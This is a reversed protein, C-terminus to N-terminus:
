ASRARRVQEAAWSIADTETSFVKFLRTENVKRGYQNALFRIIPNSVIVGTAVRGEIQSRSLMERAKRNAFGLERADGIIAVPDGPALANVADYAEQATQDDLYTGPSVTWFLVGGELLEFPGLPSEITKLARRRVVENM